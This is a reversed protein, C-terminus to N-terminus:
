PVQHRRQEQQTRRETEVTSDAHNENRNPAFRQNYWSISTGVHERLGRYTYGLETQAKASSYFLESTALRAMEPSFPFVRADFLKGIGKAVTGMALVIPRPLPAVPSYGNAEEAIITVIERYTLNQGGLIYHDGAKGREAALCIGNVCDDVGVISAGGPLYAVLKPDTALKILRATFTTDGPGFVSTPHVTVVDLNRDVYQHVIREAETKSKQYAGVAPALDREVAVGRNRRNGATSTFVVRDIDADLSAQLLTRTGEVNVEHVTESDASALGIGALHFVVDPDAEAIAAQVSSEDLIDGVHWDIDLTELDGLDSSRRRLGHVTWDREYLMACLHQGLFGTAGTVFATQGEGSHIEEIM